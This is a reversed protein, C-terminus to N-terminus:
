PKDHNSEFYVHMILNFAYLNRTTYHEDYQYTINGEVAFHPGWSVTTGGIWRVRSITSYRSDWYPEVNFYPVFSWNGTTYERELMARLRIRYSLINEEGLWRVEPRLRFSNLMKSGIPVRRHIEGFVMDEHYDGNEGTSWGRMVGARVMWAKMQQARNQDMLKTFFWKKTHGWAYDGQLYINMDSPQDGQYDALPIFAEVRWSPSLLYWLDTEPWFEFSSNQASLTSVMGTILMLVVFNKKLICQVILNLKKFM